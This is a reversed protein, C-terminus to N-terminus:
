EHLYQETYCSILCELYILIKNDTNLGINQLNQNRYAHTELSCAKYSSLSYRRVYEGSNTERKSSNALM